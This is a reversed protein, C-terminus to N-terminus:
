HPFLGEFSPYITPIMDAIGELKSHAPDVKSM